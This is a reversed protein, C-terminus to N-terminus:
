LLLGLMTFVMRPLKHQTPLSSKRLYIIPLELFRRRILRAVSIFRDIIFDNFMAVSYVRTSINTLTNANRLVETCYLVSCHMSIAKTCVHQMWTARWMVCTWYKTGLSMDPSPSKHVLLTCSRAMEGSVRVELLFNRHDACQKRRAADAICLCAMCYLLLLQQVM